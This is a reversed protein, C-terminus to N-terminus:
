SAHKEILKGVRPVAEEVNKKAMGRLKDYTAKIVALKSRQARADTIALLAEAVRGPNAAFHAAIPKAQAKADDVIPQLAASFENLFGDVAEAVFGPKFSKVVKYGTKIAIGSLGGKDGVEQDILTVCDAIVMGRKPQSGFMEQLTAM